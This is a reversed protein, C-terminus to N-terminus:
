LAFAREVFWFASITVLVASGLALVSFRYPQWNRIIFLLPFTAAIIALQGLEVGINFGILSMALSGKQVGLPSLVNAFGLGHFLGFGFVVLWTYRLLFPYINNLAVVIISGAIVAEVLREPLRAVGLAALSLTISHAVTFLTIVKIVFIFATRFDEAAVWRRDRLVMVSPLLLAIIFLIHDLGIWIHWAGHRIFTKLTDTWPIPVLSLNQREEGPGFILSVNAENAVTNTRPNNEILLMSRHTSELGQYAFQYEVEIHSPVPQLGPVDFFVQAFDRKGFRDTKSGTVKVPYTKGDHFFRLRSQLEAEVQAAKPPYEAQTPIGDGDADLAFVKDLDTLAYDFHGQLREEAVDLYIYHENLRHAEASLSFLCAFLILVSAPLHRTLSNRWSPNPHIYLRIM